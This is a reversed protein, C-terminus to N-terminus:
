RRRWRVEIRGLVWLVLLAVIALNTLIGVLHWLTTLLENM